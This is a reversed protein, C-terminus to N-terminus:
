VAIGPGTLLAGGIEQSCRGTGANALIASLESLPCAATPDAFERLLHSGKGLLPEESRGQTATRAASRKPDVSGPASVHITEHVM